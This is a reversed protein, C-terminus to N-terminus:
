SLGVINTSILPSVMRVQLKEMPCGMVVDEVEQLSVKRLLMKNHDKTLIKPINKTIKKIDQDRDNRPEKLLFSFYHNLGTELEEHSHILHGDQNKLALFFKNKSHQIMTKYFFTTNREECKLWNRRSKQQWM